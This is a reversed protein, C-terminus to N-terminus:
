SSAIEQDPLFVVYGRRSQEIAWAVLNYATTNRGHFDVIAPAPNEENVGKPTFMWGSQTAGGNGVFETRSIRVSGWSSAVGWALTTFIALLLLTAVFVKVAKVFKKNDAM